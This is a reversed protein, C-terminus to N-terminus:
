RDQRSSLIRAERGLRDLLAILAANRRREGRLVLLVLLVSTMSLLPSLWETIM